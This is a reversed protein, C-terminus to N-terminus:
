GMWFADRWPAMEPKHFRKSEEVIQQLTEDSFSQQIHPFLEREEFRIHKELLESFEKILKKEASQKIQGNLNRLRSHESEARLRMSDEKALRNFLLEEEERFHTDLDSEFFYVIYAAVRDSTIKLEDAKRIKWSLLLGFHHDKSLEVLAPHRKLPKKETM